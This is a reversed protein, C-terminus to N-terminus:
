RPDLNLQVMEQTIVPPRFPKIAPEAKASEVPVPKVVPTVKAERVPAPKVPKPAAKVSSSTPVKLITGVRLKTPDQIGNLKALEQPTVNHKLAIRYLTEGSTVKHSGMKMPTVAASAPNGKAPGGVQLIQGIKLADSTLGNLRKVEAVTTGHRRAVQTLTDGKLVRYTTLATSPVSVPPALQAAPQQVPAPVQPAGKQQLARAVEPSAAQPKLQAPAPMTLPAPFPEMSESVAATSFPDPGADQDTGAWISDAVTPMTPTQATNMTDILEPSILPASDTEIQPDGGTSGALAPPEQVISETAKDVVTNGDRGKFLYYASACVIVVLHVGLVILFVTTLKSSGMPSSDAPTPAPKENENM